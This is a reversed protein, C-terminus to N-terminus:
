CRASSAHELRGDLPRLKTLAFANAESGIPYTALCPPAHFRPCGGGGLGRLQSAMSRPREGPGPPSRGM